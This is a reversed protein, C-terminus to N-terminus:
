ATSRGPHATERVVVTVPARRYGAIFNSAVHRPEGAPTLDAFTAFVEEFVIRIM